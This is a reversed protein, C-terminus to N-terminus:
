ELTTCWELVDDHYVWVAPLSISLLPCESTMEPVGGVGRVFGGVSVLCKLYAGEGEWCDEGARDRGQGRGEGGWVAALRVSLLICEGSM